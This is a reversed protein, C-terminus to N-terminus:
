VSNSTLCVTPAIGPPLPLIWDTKLGTAVNFTTWFTHGSLEHLTWCGRLTLSLFDMNRPHDLRNLLNFVHRSGGDLHLHELHHLQVRASSKGGGDDPVACRLLTVRRLAPNSSLISFLQSTTPAPSPYNFHLKLSTLVSTRSTFRDWSSISCNSLDLRQLKPFRYHAFFDSVGFPVKSRNWLVFSEMSISRLEECDPALSDLISRMLGADGAELHVSRVADKAARDELADRLTDDFYRANYQYGGLVLDLRATASRNHRRSWDKPTVGWFSWLEPTRSAVEFWHHCVLLFNHSGEDLGDFDGKRIVNWCFINGLVEPPLKSVNLLSNRTRKLKIVAMEHEKIGEELARISDINAERDMRNGLWTLVRASFVPFDQKGRSRREVAFDATQLASYPVGGLHYHYSVFITGPRRNGGVGLSMCFARFIFFSCQM